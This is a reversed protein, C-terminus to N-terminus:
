ILALSKLKHGPNETYFCFFLKELEHKVCMCSRLQFIMLFLNELSVACQKVLINHAPRLCVNNIWM